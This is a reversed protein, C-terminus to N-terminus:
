FYVNQGDFPADTILLAPPSDPHNYDTPRPINKGITADEPLSHAIHIPTGSNVLNFFEGAVSRHIRLCGHSRPQPWVAGAHFGYGSKFEVWNPMPYGVYRYGSPMGSRKGPRIEDGKVWFGYTNSRKRPLKNFAKFNGTPTPNSPTGIAVAAAWKPEDGEYLYVARNNLSVRVKVNAKNSVSGLRLAM